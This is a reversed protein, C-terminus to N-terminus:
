ATSVGGDTRDRRHVPQMRAGCVTGRDSRGALNCRPQPTQRPARTYALTAASVFPMRDVVFGTAPDLEGEPKETLPGQGAPERRRQEEQFGEESGILLHRPYDHVIVRERTVAISQSLQRHQDLATGM